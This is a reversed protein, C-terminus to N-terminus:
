AQGEEASLGLKRGRASGGTNFRSDIEGSNEICGNVDGEDSICYPPILINCPKPVTYFPVPFHVSAASVCRLM